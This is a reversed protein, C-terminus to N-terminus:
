TNSSPTQLANIAPLVVERARALDEPTDIETWPLAHTSHTAVRQQTALREIASEYWCNTNGGTILTQLSQRLARTSEADFRALGIYEGAAAAASQSKSISTVAGNAVTVKMEEEGLPKTDDVSLANAPANTLFDILLADACLVDSNLLLFGSDISEVAVALTVINNTTEWLPNQIERITDNWLFDLTHRAFGTVVRIDTFGASALQNTQRSILPRGGIDLLCKPQHETLEGLRNGGGAALIVAPYDHTYEPSDDSM